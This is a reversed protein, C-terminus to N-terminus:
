VKSYKRYILFITILGNMSLLYLAYMWDKPELTFWVTITLANLTSAITELGWASISEDQEKSRMVKAITPVLGIFDVLISGLFAIFPSNFIIWLVVSVLAGVFCVIDLKSLGTGKGYWLSLFGIICPGIVYSLQIWLNELAGLSYSSWLIILGVLTVIWWTSRSPKTTGNLISVIYVIYAAFSLLGAIKELNNLIIHM